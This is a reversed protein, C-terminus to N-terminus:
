VQQYEIRALCHGGAPWAVVLQSGAPVYYPQTADNEDFMGAFTGSVVNEPIVQGVYVYALGDVDSQVTIRAVSWAFGPPPTFTVSAGPATDASHETLILPPAAVDAGATTGPLLPAGTIPDVPVAAFRGAYPGAGTPYSTM